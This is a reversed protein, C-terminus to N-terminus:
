ARHRNRGACRAIEEPTPTSELGRRAVSHAALCNAYRAAQWPDGTRQLTVFLAAAFIDGAGTPDVEPVSPAAFSRTEGRHHVTCGGPGHTIVLLSTRPAYRAVWTPDGQVDEDSIVVADARQLWADAEPGNWPRPLVDGQATWRRMWGQPTIGVLPPDGPWDLASLLSPACEGAVPGIHVIAARWHLPWMDGAITTAPHHLIQRRGSPTYRNEFTTTTQSPICAVTIDTLILALDLDAGVGTIVGVRCGLAYATRAAYAATGGVRFRDGVRDHTVHGVVLYDFTTGREM